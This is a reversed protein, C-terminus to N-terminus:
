QKNKPELESHDMVTCVTQLTVLPNKPFLGLEIMHAISPPTNFQIKDEPKAVVARAKELWTTVSQQLWAYSANPSSAPQAIIAAWNKRVCGLSWWALLEPLYQSQQLFEIFAILNNEYKHFLPYNTLAAPINEKAGGFALYLGEFTQIYYNSKEFEPDSEAAAYMMAHAQMITELIPM